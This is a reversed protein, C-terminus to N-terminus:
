FYNRFSTGKSNKASMAFIPFIVVNECIARGSPTVLVGASIRFDPCLM